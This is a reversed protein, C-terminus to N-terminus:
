EDSNSTLKNGQKKGGYNLWRYIKKGGFYHLTYTQRTELKIKQAFICKKKREILRTKM